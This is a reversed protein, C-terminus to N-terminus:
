WIKMSKWKRGNLIYKNKRHNIKLPIIRASTKSHLKSTRGASAHTEEGATTTSTLMFPRRDRQGVDWGTVAPIPEIAKGGKIKPSIIFDWCLKSFCITFRVLNYFNENSYIGTQCCRIINTQKRNYLKNDTHTVRFCFPQFFWVYKNHARSSPTLCFQFRFSCGTKWSSAPVVQRTLAEVYLNQLISKVPFFGAAKHLNDEYLHCM